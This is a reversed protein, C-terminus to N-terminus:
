SHGSLPFLSTIDRASLENKNAMVGNSDHFCLRVYHKRRDSMTVFLVPKWSLYNDTYVMYSEILKCLPRVILCHFFAHKISGEMEGCRVYKPLIGLGTTKELVKLWKKWSSTPVLGSATYRVLGTRGVSSAWSSLRKVFGVALWPSKDCNIKAGTVMEELRRLKASNTVLTSVNGPRSPQVLYHFGAWSWIKGWCSLNWQLCIYCLYFHAIRDFRALVFPESRVRKAEM